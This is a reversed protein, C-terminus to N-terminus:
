SKCLIDLECDNLIIGAASFSARFKSTPVMGENVKGGERLFQELNIRKRTIANKVKALVEIISLPEECPAKKEQMQKLIQMIEQHKWVSFQNENIEELFKWYNFGMDDGYRTMLAEVEKESMLISNASFVRRMQCRTVHFHNSKDYGKFFSEIFIRQSKIINRIRFLTDQALQTTSKPVHDWSVTGPRPLQKVWDPPSEVVTYPQKDLNRLLFFNASWHHCILLKKSSRSCKMSTM